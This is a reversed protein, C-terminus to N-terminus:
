AAAQNLADILFHTFITQRREESVWSTQDEDSACLVILNPHTEIKEKRKNLQRTFDNHLMGIPCHADVLAPELILLVNHDKLDNQALSELLQDLSLQERGTPDDFLLFADRDDATGHLSVFLVITKEARTGLRSRQEDWARQDTLTAAH